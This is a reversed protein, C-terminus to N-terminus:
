ARLVAAMCHRPISRRWRCGNAIREPLDPNAIYPRGFAILDALGAELLRAGREAVPGPLLVPVTCREMAAPWACPKATPMDHTNATMSSTANACRQRLCYATAHM